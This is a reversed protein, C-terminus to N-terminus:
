LPSSQLWFQMMRSSSESIYNKIYKRITRDMASIMSDFSKYNQHNLRSNREIWISYITLQWVLYCIRKYWTPDSLSQMATILSSWNRQLNIYVLSALRTWFNWSFSCDFMLHDRSEDLSSCILCISDVYIGWSLKRGENPLRNLTVLWSLLSSKGDLSSTNPALWMFFRDSLVRAKVDYTHFQKPFPKPPLSPKKAQSSSDYTKKTPPNPESSPKPPAPSSLCFIHVLPLLLPEILSSQHPINLLCFTSLHNLPKIWQLKIM